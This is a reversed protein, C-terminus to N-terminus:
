PKCVVPYMYFFPHCDRSCRVAAQCFQSSLAQLVLLHTSYTHVKHLLLVIVYYSHRRLEVGKLARVAFFLLYFIIQRNQAIPSFTHFEYHIM